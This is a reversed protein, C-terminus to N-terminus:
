SSSLLVSKFCIVSGPTFNFFDVNSTEKTSSPNLKVMKSEDIKINERIKLNYNPLGNIYRADRTYLACGTRQVVHAELLVEEILGSVVCVSRQHLSYQVCGTHQVIHAELLVEKILGSLLVYM